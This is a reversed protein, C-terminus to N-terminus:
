ANQNIAYAEVSAAAGNIDYQSLLRKLEDHLSGSANPASSCCSEEIALFPNSADVKSSCCGTQNEVKADAHLDKGGDLIEVHEFGAVRLGARYDDILIAGAISKPKIPRDKDPLAAM